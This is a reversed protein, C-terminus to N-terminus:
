AAERIAHERQFADRRAAAIQKDAISQFRSSEAKVRRDIEAQVEPSLAPTATPPASPPAVAGADASPTSAEEQGVDEVQQEM